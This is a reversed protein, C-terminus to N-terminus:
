TQGTVPHGVVLTVLHAGILLFVIICLLQVVGYSILRPKLPDAPQRHKYVAFAFLAANLALLILTPILDLEM